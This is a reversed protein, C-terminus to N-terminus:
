TFVHMGSYFTKSSAFSDKCSIGLNVNKDVLLRWLLLEWREYPALM